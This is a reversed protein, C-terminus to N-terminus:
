TCHVKNVYKSLDIKIGEDNIDDEEVEDGINRLKKKSLCSNNTRRSLNKPDKNPQKHHPINLFSSHSTSPRVNNTEIFENQSRNHVRKFNIETTFSEKM